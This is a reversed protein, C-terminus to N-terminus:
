YRDYLVLSLPKPSNTNVQKSRLCDIRHVITPGEDGKLFPFYREFNIEDMGYIHFLKEGTYIIALHYHDHLEFNPPDKFQYVSCQVFHPHFPGSPQQQSAQSVVMREYPCITEPNGSISPFM